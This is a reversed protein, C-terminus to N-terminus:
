LQDRHSEIGGLGVGYLELLGQIFKAIRCFDNIIFNNFLHFFFAFQIKEFLNDLIVEFGSLNVGYKGTERRLGVSVQMKTM